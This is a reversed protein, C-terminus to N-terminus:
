NVQRLPKGQLYGNINEVMQTILRQRAETAIWASHPTVILNNINEDLLVNGNVPPEESLVDLGAGAIDGNVLAQKLAQEDIIAGRATNILIASKKMLALEPAAILRETQATLPCHLSLVDVMPLLDSLALRRLNDSYSRGPLAAYIVQMGFAEAIKAVGTGLDGAGVIGLTKGALERVPYELLCFYKSKAWGGEMASKSYPLLNTTLALILSWAHQVVSATGYNVANSVVIRRATAAELDVVNTGTATLTILKLNPSQAMTSASIQTKNSLVIDADAIYEVVQSDLCNPYVTWDIPLNYLESFDLDDPGLSDCDLIVGRMSSGGSKFLQQLTISLAKPAFELFL